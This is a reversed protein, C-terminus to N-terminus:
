KKNKIELYKEQAKIKIDFQAVSRFSRIKFDIGQNLVRVVWKKSSQSFFVGEENPFQEDNFRKFNRGYNLGSM